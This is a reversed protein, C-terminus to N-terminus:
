EQLFGGSQHAWLRAYVGHKKKLLETHSGQEVIKGNDLVVIRDMKQITSLRHAIVIATKGQMLKWLSDQILMESESDLASTAEDLLLIPANKLMARAIAVRQKQGGSLKVGREGVLTDYQHPLKSIFEHAHASKSAHLLEEKTADPTGYCINEALSRHFLLPEQPVYSIISRLDHQSVDKINVGNVSISGSEVDIFRLLLKTLTTKGSGSHGVLGIKEGEKVTLTFNKFLGDKEHSFTMDNIEIVGGTPLMKPKDTDEINPKTLLVETAEQADGLAKNINRLTRQSFEWLRTNIFSTYTYVLFVTSVDAEYVVVSIIAMVFAMVSLGGMFVAFVNERHLQAIMINHTARFTDNTSEHFRDNEQKIAAFSKVALVNTIMDALVGTQKNQKSAEISSLKRVKQTIKTALAVYVLSIVWLLVVFSSSKPWLIVSVSVFMIILSYIDFFLTDAIRVYSGILKNTRSVLSGGFSNNHFEMDLSILHNFMRNAIDRQVRMELKWILFIFLRWVLTGGVLILSAYLIIDNGFSQWINSTFDGSSLRDLVNSVIIPPLIQHLLLVVPMWAFIAIVFGKYRWAHEAYIRITAFNIGRYKNNM